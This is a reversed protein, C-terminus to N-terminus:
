LARTTSSIVMQVLMVYSVIMIWNVFFGILKCEQVMGLVGCWWIHTVCYFNLSCFFPVGGGGDGGWFFM